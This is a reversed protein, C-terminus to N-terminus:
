NYTKYIEPYDRRLVRMGLVKQCEHIGKCFDPLESEHTQQLVCMKNYAEVLLDNIEKEEHTFPEKTNKEILPFHFM